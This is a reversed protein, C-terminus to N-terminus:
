PYAKRRSKSAPQPVPTVMRELEAVESAFIDPRTARAQQMRDLYLRMSRRAILSLSPKHSGKLLISAIFARMEHADAKRYKLVLTTGDAANIRKTMLKGTNDNTTM